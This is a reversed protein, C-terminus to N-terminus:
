DTTTADGAPMQLWADMMDQRFRHQKHRRAMGGERREQLQQVQEPSLIGKLDFMFHARVVAMEEMIPAMDRAAGRIGEEDLADATMLTHMRERAARMKEKLGEREERYAPLLQGIATKQETSLDLDWLMKLHMGAGPGHGGRALAFNAVGTVGVILLGVLLIYFPCKKITNMM